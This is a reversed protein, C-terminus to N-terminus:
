LRRQIRFAVIALYFEWTTPAQEQYESPQGAPSLQNRPENDVNQGVQSGTSADHAFYNGSSSISGRGRNSVSSGRFVAVLSNLISCVLFRLSLYFLAVSVYPPQALVRDLV